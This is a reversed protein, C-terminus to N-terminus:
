PTGSTLANVQSVPTWTEVTHFVIVAATATVLPVTEFGRTESSLEPFCSAALNVTVGVTPNVIPPDTARPSNRSRRTRV